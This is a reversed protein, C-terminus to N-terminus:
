GFTLLFEMRIEESPFELFIHSEHFVIEAGFENRLYLKLSPNLQKSEQWMKVFNRYSDVLDYQDSNLIGVLLCNKWEVEFM